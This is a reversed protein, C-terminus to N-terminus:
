CGLAYILLNISLWTARPFSAALIEPNVSLPSPALCALHYPCAILLLTLSKLMPFVCWHSIAWNPYNTRDIKLPFRGIQMCSGAIFNEYLCAPLSLQRQEPTVSTVSSAASTVREPLTENNAQNNSPAM